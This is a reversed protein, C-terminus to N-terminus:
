EGGNIGGERMLELWRELHGYSLWVDSYSVIRVPVKIGAEMAAAHRHTGSLLQIGEGYPYGILPPKSLDWGGERFQGALEAVQSPRVVRHPPFCVGTPLWHISPEM